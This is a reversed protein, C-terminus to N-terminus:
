WLLLKNGCQGCIEPLMEQILGNWCAEELQQEKTLNNQNSDDKECSNRSPFNIGILLLIEQQTSTPNM